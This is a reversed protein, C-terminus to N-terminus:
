GQIKAKSAKEKKQMKDPFGPPKTKKKRLPSMHHSTNGPSGSSGHSWTSEFFSDHSAFSSSSGPSKPAPAGALEWNRFFIEKRRHMKADSIM